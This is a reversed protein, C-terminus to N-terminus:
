LTVAEEVYEQLVKVAGTLEALPKQTKHSIIEESDPWESTLNLCRFVVNGAIDAEILGMKCPRLNGLRIGGASTLILVQM